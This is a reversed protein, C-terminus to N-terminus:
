ASRSEDRDGLLQQEHRSLVGVHWRLPEPVEVLSEWLHGSAFSMVSDASAEVQATRLRDPSARAHQALRILHTTLMKM